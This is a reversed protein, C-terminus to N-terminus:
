KPKREVVLEGGIGELGWQQEVCVVVSGRGPSSKDTRM